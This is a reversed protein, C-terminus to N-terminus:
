KGSEAEPEGSNEWWPYQEPVLMEITYPPAFLDLDGDRDLDVLRCTAAHCQDVRIVHKEFKGGPQQELWMLADFTGSPQSDIQDQSLLACAAIDLDGDGDIDGTTACYVGPMTALQHERLPYTGENELWGVYHFPKALNDDFTDGCTFVVDLDGDGDLDVTEIGSSGLSPGDGRHLTELLFLGDGQNLFVDITEYHQTMLVVLDDLGNGDFDVVNIEVCGARPDLSKLEFQPIGDVCDTQIMVDIGGIFHMGFDAVVLDLDGDGDFDFPVSDAVRALGMRLAHREFTGDPMGRFFWVTGERQPQPSMSGLDAVVYDDIGDANLDARRVRAPHSTEGIERSVVSLADKESFSLERIAGSFMDSLVLKTGADDGVVETSSVARLDQRGKSELWNERFTKDDERSGTEFPYAVPARDVFWRITAEADPVVLHDRRSKHYLRIGQLVEHEWRDKPFRLPSPM